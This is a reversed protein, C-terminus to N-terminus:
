FHFKLNVLRFIIKLIEMALIELQVCPPSQKFKEMLDPEANTCLNRVSGKYRQYM